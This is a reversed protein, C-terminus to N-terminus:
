FAAQRNKSGRRMESTFFRVATLMRKFSIALEGIEDKQDVGISVSLDGMSIKEAADKLNNIPKTLSRSLLLALIVALLLTAVSIVISLMFLNVAAESHEGASIAAKKADETSDIVLDDLTRTAVQVENVHKDNLLDIAKQKENQKYSDIIQNFIIEYTEISQEIDGIFRIESEENVYASAKELLTDIQEDIDEDEKLFTDDGTLLYKHEALQQLTILNKLEKFLFAENNEATSVKIATRMQTLSYISIFLPIAGILTILLFAGLLKKQLKIDEFRM